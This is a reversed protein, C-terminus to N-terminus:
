DRMGGRDRRHSAKGTSAVFVFTGVENETEMLKM